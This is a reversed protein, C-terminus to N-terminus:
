TSSCFSPLSSLCCSSSPLTASFWVCLMLAHLHRMRHRSIHAACALSSGQAVHSMTVWRSFTVHSTHQECKPFVSIGDLEMCKRSVSFLVQAQKDKHPFQLIFNVCSRMLIFMKVAPRPRVTPRGICPFRSPNRTRATRSRITKWVLDNSRSRRSKCYM